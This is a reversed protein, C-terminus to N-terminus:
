DIGFFAEDFEGHEMEGNGGMGGDNGGDFFLMDDFVSDDGGATGLDMDLDLNSSATADNGINNFVDDEPKKSETSANNTTNNDPAHFDTELNPFEHSHNGFSSLDFDNQSTQVNSYDISDFNLESDANNHENEGMDFLSDISSNQLDSTAPASTAPAVETNIGLGGASHNSSQEDSSKPPTPGSQVKPAGQAEPIGPKTVEQAIAKSDKM